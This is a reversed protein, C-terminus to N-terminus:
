KEQEWKITKDKTLFTKTMDNIVLRSFKYFEELIHDAINYEKRINNLITEKAHGGALEEWKFQIYQKQNHIIHFVNFFEDYKFTFCYDLRFRYERHYRPVVNVKIESM